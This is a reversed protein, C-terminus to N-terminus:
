VPDSPVPVDSAAVIVTSTVSAAGVQSFVDVVVRCSVGTSM